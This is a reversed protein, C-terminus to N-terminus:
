DKANGLPKIILNLNVNVNEHLKLTIPHNGITKLPEFQRVQTPMVPVKLERSIAQALAKPQIAAYLKGAPSAKAEITVTKGSLEGAWAQARELERSGAQELAKSHQALASLKEPTARLALGRPLLYNLAYGQAVEKVEDRRAVGAVDQTFIVKM